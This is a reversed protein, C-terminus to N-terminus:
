RIYKYFLVLSKYIKIFLRMKIAIGLNMINLIILVILTENNIIYYNHYIYHLIYFNYVILRCLVFSIPFLIEFYTKNIIKMDILCLIITSFEHIGTINILYKDFRESFILLIFVLLHHVKNFTKFTKFYTNLISDSIFYIYSCYVLDENKYFFTAFICFYLHFFLSISKIHNKKYNLYFYRFLDILSIIFFLFVHYM